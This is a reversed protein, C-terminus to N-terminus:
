RGVHSNVRREVRHLSREMQRQRATIQLQRDQIANLRQKEVMKRRFDNASNDAYSIPIM